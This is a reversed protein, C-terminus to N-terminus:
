AARRGFLRVGVAVSAVDMLPVVVEGLEAGDGRHDIRPCRFSGM